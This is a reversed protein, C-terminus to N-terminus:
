IYDLKRMQWDGPRRRRYLLNLDQVKMQRADWMSLSEQSSAHQKTSTLDLPLASLPALHLREVALRLSAPLDPSQSRAVRGRVTVERQTVRPCMVRAPTM